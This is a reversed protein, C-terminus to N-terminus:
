RSIEYIEVLAVGVGGSGPEATVSYAGAPLATLVAADGSGVLLPFAGAQQAAGAIFEANPQESWDDNEVIPEGNHMVRLRPNAAAGTVGLRLLGPGVARILLQKEGSGSVVFGGILVNEGEQTYARTSLNVLRTAPSDKSGDDYCEILAVGGQGDAASVVASYVGTPLTQRMASDRSNDALAFAGVRRAAAVLEAGQSVSWGQNTTLRVGHQFLELKPAPLAQVVGQPLLAPGVGRVLLTRAGAGSTVFGTILVQEGAGVFARASLNVLRSESAGTRFIRVLGRSQMGPLTTIARDVVLWSGHGDDIIWPDMLPADWRLVNKELAGTATIRVPGGVAEGNVLDGGQLLLSGDPLAVMQKPSVPYTLRRGSSRYEVNEIRVRFSADLEGGPLLRCVGLGTVEAFVHGASSVAASIIGTVANFKPDISGDSRLHVISGSVGSGTDVDALVYITGDAQPWIASAMRISAPPIFARDVAGTSRLRVLPAARDNLTATSAVYLGNTTLALDKVGTFELGPTFGDDVQGNPRLRALRGRGAGFVEPLVGFVYASGDSLGVGGDVVYSNAGPGSRLIAELSGDNRLLRLEPATTRTYVYMRGDRLPIVTRRSVASSLQIDPRFSQDVGGPVRPQVTVRAVRSTTTGAANAVRVSYEGSARVDFQYLTAVDTNPIEVGNFLWQYKEGPSGETSVALRFNGGATITTPAPDSLIRPPLLPNLLRALGGRAAAAIATFSGGVLVRDDPALVLDIVEGNPQAEPAFRTDLSGDPLLRALNAHAVGNVADFDGGVLIRGDPEVALADVSASGGVKTLNVAFGTDRTGDPRLRRVCGASDAGLGFYGGVLLSGDPLAVVTSLGVASGLAARSDFNPDIVGSKLVRVLSGFVPRGIVSVRFVGAIVLADDSTVLIRSIATGDLFGPTFSFTPDVSGNSRLKQVRPRVQLQTDVYIGGAVVSGDPLLTVATVASGSEYNPKFSQDPSGDAHLRVLSRRGPDASHALLGGVLIQGDPQVALAFVGGSDPLTFSASFGSDTSGDVNLRVLGTVSRGDFGGFTGGVLVRGDPQLALCEVTGGSVAGPRFAADVSGSTQGHSVTCCLALWAPLLLFWRM